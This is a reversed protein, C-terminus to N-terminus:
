VGAHPENALSEVFLYKVTKKTRGKTSNKEDMWRGMKSARRGRFCFFTRLLKRAGPNERTVRFRIYTPTGSLCRVPLRTARLQSGCGPGERVGQPLAESVGPTMHGPSLSRSWLHNSDFLYSSSLASPGWLAPRPPCQKRYETPPVSKPTLSQSKSGPNRKM